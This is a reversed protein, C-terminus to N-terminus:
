KVILKAVKAGSKMVEDMNIGIDKGTIEYREAIQNVLQTYLIDQATRAQEMLSVIAGLQIKENETLDLEQAEKKKSLISDKKSM